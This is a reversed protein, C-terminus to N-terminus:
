KTSPLNATGDIRSVRENADFYVSLYQSADKVNPKGARRGDTGATYDYLYDWRNPNLTDVLSPSGIAYLVQEKTMGLKLQAAKEQTIPTGQPLDIKYVGLVNCGSLGCVAMLAFATLIKKM